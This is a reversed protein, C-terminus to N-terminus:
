KNQQLENRNFDMFVVEHFEHFTEDQFSGQLSTLLIDNMNVWPYLMYMNNTHTVSLIKHEQAM